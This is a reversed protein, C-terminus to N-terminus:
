ESTSFYGGEANAGIASVDMTADASCTTAVGLSDLFAFCFAGCEARRVCRRALSFSSLSSFSCSLEVVVATRIFVVTTLLFPDLEIAPSHYYVQSKVILHSVLYAELVTNCRQAMIFCELFDRRQARLQSVRITGVALCRIRKRKEKSRETATDHRAEFSTSGVSPSFYLPPRFSILM